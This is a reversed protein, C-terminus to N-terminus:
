CMDTNAFSRGHLRCGTADTGTGYSNNSTDPGNAEYWGCQKPGKTPTTRNGVAPATNTRTQKRTSHQTKPTGNRSYDVHRMRATIISHGTQFNPCQQKIHEQQSLVEFKFAGHLSIQHCVRNATLQWLCHLLCVWGWDHAITRPIWCCSMSDTVQFFFHLNASVHLMELPSWDSDNFM